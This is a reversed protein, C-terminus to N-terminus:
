CKPLHVATFWVRVGEDLVREGVRCDVRVHPPDLRVDSADMMDELGNGGCRDGLERLVNSGPPVIMNNGM